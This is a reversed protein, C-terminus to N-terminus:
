RVELIPQVFEPFFCIWRSSYPACCVKWCWTGWVCMVPPQFPTWLFHGAQMSKGREAVAPSVASSPDCVQSPLTRKTNGIAKWLWASGSTTPLSYSQTVTYNQHMLDNQLHISLAAFLLAWELFSKKKWSRFSSPPWMDNLGTMGTCIRAPFSM